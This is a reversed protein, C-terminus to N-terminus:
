AEQSVRIAWHYADILSSTWRRADLGTAALATALGPGNGLESQEVLHLLRGLTGRRELLAGTVEDALNLPSVIGQMNMQLLHELLSFIGVMFAEDQLERSGGLRAALTEMLEARLAARPMLPNTEAGPSRAYLLLQLWRQLQRRGLMTIAQNFSAIKTSLSFAVSNVLRLLQYSLHADQKLIEELAHADADVAVLALLRLLLAKHTTGSPLPAADPHLPYNGAFWHFGADRCRFFEGPTEVGTVLHPGAHGALLPPAEPAMAEEPYALAMAQVASGHLGEAPPLGEAMISFGQHRLEILDAARAPDACVAAPISFWLREGPLFDAADPLCRRVDGIRVICPLHGLANFLGMEGFLQSLLTRDCPAQLLLASWSHHRDAVPHLAILPLDAAAPDAM